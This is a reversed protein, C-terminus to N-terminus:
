TSKTIFHKLPVYVTSAQLTIGDHRHFALFAVMGMEAYREDLRLFIVDRVDRIIYRDFAGFLIAKVAGTGTTASAITAMNPNLVYPKGLIKDPQDESVGAQWLPRSDGDVLKRLRSLTNDNFMWYCSPSARYLPDVSHMLTVLEAYTVTNVDSGTSGAISQTVCGAPQIDTTVGVTFHENTGRAIRIGFAEGIVQPLNIAADQMLEIPVMVRKTTYKFAGLTAQGFTLSAIDAATNIALIASKNGTDDLLPWPLTAGTETRIVKAVQRVGGYSLLAVELNQMAENAIAYGGATTTLTQYTTARYEAQLVQEATDRLEQISRPANANLKIKMSRSFPDVGCKRAAKLYQEPIEYQQSGALCFARWANQKDESTITNETKDKEARSKKIEEGENQLDTVQEMGHLHEIREAMELKRKQDNDLKEWQADEEKTMARNETNAKVLLDQMQKAIPLREERLKKAEMLSISM